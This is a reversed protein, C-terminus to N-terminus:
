SKKEVIDCQWEAFIFRGDQRANRLVERFQERWWEKPQATYPKPIGGINEMGYRLEVTSPYEEVTVGKPFKFTDEPHKKM